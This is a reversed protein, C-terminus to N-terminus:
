VGWGVLQWAALQAVTAAAGVALATNLWAVSGPWWHGVRGAVAIVIWGLAFLALAAPLHLALRQALPLQLWGIFGSDVLGPMWALIAVSALVLVATVAGVAAALRLWGRGVPRRRVVSGRRLVRLASGVLWVTAAAAAALLVAWQWPAPGGAARVLRLGRWSIDPGALDLTEGNAALFIGPEVEVLRFRLLSGSEDTEFYPVGDEVLFRAPSVPNIV